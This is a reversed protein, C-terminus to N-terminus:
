DFTITSLLPINESTEPLKEFVLLMLIVLTLLITLSFTIKEESEAPIIFVLLSILTILTCPFMLNVIIYLPSRRIWIEM